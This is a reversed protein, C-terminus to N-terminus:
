QKTQEQQTTTQQTAVKEESIKEAQPAQTNQATPAEQDANLNKKFGNIASGLDSGLNRLKKTGFILVIVVLLIILQWTSIGM